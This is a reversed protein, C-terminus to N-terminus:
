AIAVAADKGSTEITLFDDDLCQLLFVGVVGSALCREFLLVFGGRHKFVFIDAFGEVIHGDFAIAVADDEFVDFALRQGLMHAHAREGLVFKFLHM